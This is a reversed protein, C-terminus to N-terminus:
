CHQTDKDLTGNAIDPIDLEVVKGYLQVQQYLRARHIKQRLLEARQETTLTIPWDTEPFLDNLDLNM